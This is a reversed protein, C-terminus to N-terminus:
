LSNLEDCPRNYGRSFAAYCIDGGSCDKSPIGQDIFTVNTLAGGRADLLYFDAQTCVDSEGDDDNDWSVEFSYEDVNSEPNDEDRTLTHTSGVCAISGPLPNGLFYDSDNLLQRICEAGAQAAHFAVESDRGTISISIQKVTINLLSIGVALVVSIVVITILLAFGSQKKITNIIM